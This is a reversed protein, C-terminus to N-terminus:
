RPRPSREKRAARIEREIEEAPLSSLGAEAAHQRMRSAAVQARARRLAELALEFDDDLRVLIGQPRGNATVVLDEERLKKWVEGPRNRLDRISIFKM